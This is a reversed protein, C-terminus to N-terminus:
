LQIGGIVLAHDTLLIKGSAPTITISITGDKKMYKSSDLIIYSSTAQAVSGTLPAAAKPAAWFEGAAVSFTVTGQSAVNKILIAFRNDNKTSATVTFVEAANAVTATAATGVFPVATNKPTVLLNAVATAM